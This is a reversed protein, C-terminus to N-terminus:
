FRKKFLHGVKDFKLFEYLKAVSESKLQVSSAPCFEKAGKLKAWEEAKKILRIPVRLSTREKPDIYLALDNCIMQDSFFFKTLHVVMGGVIKGDKEAVWGMGIFPNEMLYNLTAKAKQRDFDLYSYAGEKWMLTGLDLITELDKKDWERIM